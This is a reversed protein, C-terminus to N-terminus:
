MTPVFSATQNLLSKKFLNDPCKPAPISIQALETMKTDKDHIDGLSHVM